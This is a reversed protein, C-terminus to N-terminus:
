ARRRRSAFGALGLLALAGPAPVAVADVGFLTVTGSWTGSTGSAGYGNGIWVTGDVAKNGTFSLASTLSVSGISTTGPASSGGNPWFYRQSASLNSFGGIQLRGGTSLPEVDVYVCLDDAYTYAVSADLTVNISAGTLSGVINYQTYDVFSAFNFGTFTQNTLTVTIDASAASVLSAAAIGSAIFTKM